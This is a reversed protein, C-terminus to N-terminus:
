GKVINWYYNGSSSPGIRFGTVNRRSAAVEIQQSIIVFPSTKQHERQLEEYIAKRKETDRELVNALTKRTMEPIDWANRWALTKSRADDANSENIAFTEANTHPDLYDPGWQGIFIDHTRARYKTLTARGEGPLLELKIGAAAWQAQLAQAIDTFPSTNRVDMTISFGDKLGAKELLAKAKAVDYQYPKDSIAGLFGKPLFSQHTAYTGQTINREIADYDTLWKLAERVEPKALNPNKTNLGLYLIYGKDGQDIKLDKNQSVPTLQDKLLNRAFDVDGKELLLRQSALEPVHRVIVRRTKPAGGIWNPNAELAYQENARWGRLIYAGSGASNRKMWENGFDNDKVNAQVLKSDVIGAVDSTMCNLFFSTAYPKNVTITVTQPDVAKVVDLVNDKNIGFQTIIFGPSKNLTVARQFSYVVDASTIPNGSHFKLNPKLKFTYTMGDASASWSEALQGVIRSPDNVDYNVLRDYINGTVESGSFEFVEAPDLSIIDDIQKAMVVTDRPTQAFSPTISVIATTAFLAAGAAMALRRNMRM